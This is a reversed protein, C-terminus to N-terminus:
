IAKKRRKCLWLAATLEICLFNLSIRTQSISTTATLLFLEVNCIFSIKQLQFMLKKGRQRGTAKSRSIHQRSLFGVLLFSGSWQNLLSFLIVRGSLTWVTTFQILDNDYILYLEFQRLNSQTQVIVFFSVIRNDYNCSYKRTKQSSEYARTQEPQSEPVKM